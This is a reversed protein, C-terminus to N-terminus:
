KTVKAIAGEALDHEDAHAPIRMPPSAGKGNMAECIRRANEPSSAVCLLEPGDFVRCRADPVSRITKEDASLLQFRPPTADDM